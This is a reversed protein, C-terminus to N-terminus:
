RIVGDRRLKRILGPAALLPHRRQWPALQVRVGSHREIKWLVYDIGGEFTYASKALRVVHLPKGLARRLRWAAQAAPRAAQALRPQLQGDAAAQFSLGAAQWALPLLRRYRPAAHATLQQARSAGKEVRLEASYTQTFLANWYEEASGRAPGLRAAWNAASIVATTVAEAAADRAGADRSWALGAPQAFRAWMTTDLSEARMARHFQDVRLVAVKARLTRGEHAREFYLINPPLLRNAAAVARRGYWGRLSDVLLYFDLIGDLDGSRLNSGYFLVAAATGPGGRSAIDAAFAHVSAPLPEILEADIARRLQQRASDATM